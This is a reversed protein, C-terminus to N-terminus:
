NSIGIELDLYFLGEDHSPRSSQKTTGGHKAHAERRAGQRDPPRNTRVIYTQGRATVPAVRISPFTYNLM